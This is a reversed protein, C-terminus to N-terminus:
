CHRNSFPISGRVGMIINPAYGFYACGGDYGATTLQRVQGVILGNGFAKM